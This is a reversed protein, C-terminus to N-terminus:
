VPIARDALEELSDVFFDPPSSKLTEPAFGYSVGCAQVGAARATDIDVGSDGVMVTHERRANLKSVLTDIGIPHPKKQEFSNGGYVYQFHGSLGLGEVIAESIRVPKNTLVALPIGARMMRDLATRVGPYLVTNDLMHARYYELFFALAQDVDAQSAGAGLSRRILVPAGNGVYSYVTENPLPSLGLHGLAANVSHALDLKSDILTGDLDFIALDM